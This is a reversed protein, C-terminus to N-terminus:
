EQSVKCLHMLTNRIEDQQNPFDQLDKVIEPWFRKSSANLTKSKLEEIYQEINVTCDSRQIFKLM